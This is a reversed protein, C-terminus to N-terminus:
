FSTIEALERIKQPLPNIIQKEVNERKDEIIFNYQVTDTEKLKKNEEILLLCEENLYKNKQECKELRVNYKSIIVLMLAFTLITIGGVFM